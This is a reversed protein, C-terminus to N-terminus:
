KHSTASGVGIGVTIHVLQRTQQPFATTIFTDLNTKTANGMGADVLAEFACPSPIGLPNYHNRVKQKRPNQDFANLISGFRLLLLIWIYVNLGNGFNTQVWNQEVQNAFPFLLRACTLHHHIAFHALKTASNAFLYASDTVVVVVMVVM